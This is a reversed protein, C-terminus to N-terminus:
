FNNEEPLILKKQKPPIVKSKAVGTLIKQLLEKSVPELLRYEQSKLKKELDTRDVEKLPRACCILCDKSFPEYDKNSLPIHIEDGGECSRHSMFRTTSTTLLIVSNSFPNLNLVFYFRPHEDGHDTLKGYFAGGQTLVARIKLNDPLDM